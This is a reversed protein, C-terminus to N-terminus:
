MGKMVQDLSPAQYITGELIYFVQILEVISDTRMYKFLKFLPAHSSSDPEYYIGNMKDMSINMATNYRAQM